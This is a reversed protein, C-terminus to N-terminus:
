APRVPSTPNLSSDPRLDTSEPWPRSARLSTVQLSRRRGVRNLEAYEPDAALEALMERRPWCILVVADWDDGEVEILPTTLTGAYVVWGGIREIIPTAKALYWRYLSEGGETFKLLNLMVALEGDDADLFARIGGERLV